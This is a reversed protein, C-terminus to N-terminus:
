GKGRSEYSQKYVCRGCGGLKPWKEISRCIGVMYVIALEGGQWLGLFGQM